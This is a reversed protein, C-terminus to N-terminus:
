VDDFGCQIINLGNFPVFVTRFRSKLAKVLRGEAFFLPKDSIIV